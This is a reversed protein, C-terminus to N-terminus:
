KAVAKAHDPNMVTLTLWEAILAPKAAGEIEVTVSHRSLFETPSRPAVSELRFRGRIRAGAPVPSLFRLKEFGYNVGMARGEIAPL